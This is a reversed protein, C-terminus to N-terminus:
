QLIQQSHPPQYSTGAETSQMQHPTDAEMRSRCRTERGSVSSRHAEEWPLLPFTLVRSKYLHIGQNPLPIENTYGPVFFVLSQDQAHKLIHGHVFFAEDLYMRPSQIYLPANGQLAGVRTAIHTILSTCEVPGSMKFNDLWQMIMPKIPSVKIKNIM